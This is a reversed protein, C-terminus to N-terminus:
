GRSDAYKAPNSCEGSLQYGGDTVVKALKAFALEVAEQQPHTYKATMTISSHGAIRALTFADCGSEALRTLASHRLTYLCFSTLGSERLAARHLQFARQEVLHGSVGDSPFVFGETPAGQDRWNVSPLVFCARRRSGIIGATYLLEPHEHRIKTSTRVHACPEAHAGRSLSVPRWGAFRSGDKGTEFVGDPPGAYAWSGM